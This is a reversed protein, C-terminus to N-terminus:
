AHVCCGKPLVDSFCMFILVPSVKLHDKSDAIKAVETVAVCANLRLQDRVLSCLRTEMDYVRATKDRSCSALLNGAPSFAM